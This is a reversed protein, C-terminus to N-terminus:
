TGADVGADFYRQNSSRIRTALEACEEALQALVEAEGLRGVNVYTASSAPNIEAGCRDCIRKVVM